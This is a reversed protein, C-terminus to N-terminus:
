GVKVLECVIFLMLGMMQKTGTLVTLAGVEKYTQKKAAYCGLLMSTHRLSLDAKVVVHAVM